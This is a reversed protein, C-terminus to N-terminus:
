ITGYICSKKGISKIIEFYKYSCREKNLLSEDAEYPLANTYSGKFFLESNSQVVGANHFIACEDWKSIDDTAWCFDMEKVVNTNYGRMWANWLVAWMDSCWIQLEHHTPDEKKKKNNLETIEKFLKESDKEVKHFFAFDVNKLIYQAGGSQGQRIRVEDKYIGVIDCMRNLVDEGKSLIYDHGIYSITDSVYWNNDRQQYNHLFLPFRTFVV